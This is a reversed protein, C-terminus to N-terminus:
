NPAGTAVLGAYVMNSDMTQKSTSSTKETGLSEAKIHEKTSQPRM